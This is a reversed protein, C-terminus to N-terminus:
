RQEQGWPNLTWGGTGLQFESSEGDSRLNDLILKRRPTIQAQHMKRRKSSAAAGALPSPNQKKKGPPRGPPRGSPKRATYRKKVKRPAAPANLPGLRLAVPIREQSLDIETEDEDHPALPASVMSARVMNEAAEEFQGEAEAQRVRERRAASKSPDGCATYQVMVERLEGLAVDM